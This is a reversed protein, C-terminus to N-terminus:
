QVAGNFNKAAQVYTLQTNELGGSIALQTNDGLSTSFNSRQRDAIPLTILNDSEQIFEFKHIAFSKPQSMTQKRERLTSEVSGRKVQQAVFPITAVITVILLLFLGIRSAWIVSRKFETPKIHRLHNELMM